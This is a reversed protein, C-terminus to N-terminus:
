AKELKKNIDLLLKSTEEFSYSKSTEQILFEKIDDILDIATDVKKNSGRKYAGINILDESEKYVALIDKIANSMNMHDKEVINPMVRSISGLIDIAPYHNQNALKRSLVIHGDLIGRVTDTIPENLDDGDVLVTYLGTISGRDSTGARELLKPLLAFVSPTFGRTVPPEGIALGIERQAMAFRTLSDMLLMVNMEQDRFYEAIATAVMAGKVRILAPQDSTVVVVVSKKLGEEQLDNEIFERVERGREGILGIVNIDSTSNRSIMGMLTSKGVGSGAFIGIRQGKGCTLLGDIAKVGLSLPEEIKMRELPNPPSKSVPYSRLTNIPGKGDIPQGLGNIVRGILEDGVNINLSKGSAIVTSGSAIGEMDGLPMLLIKDEKFGVVEAMIPTNKNHPYIYCLEGISAMPGNSEITLGTVKTINGTYKVLRKDNIASIYKKLDIRNEM